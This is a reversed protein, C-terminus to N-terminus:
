KLTATFNEGETDCLFDTTIKGEAKKKSTFEGQGGVYVGGPGKYAFKFKGNKEKDRMSYNCYKTTVKEGDVKITIKEKGSEVAGKYTGDKPNAALVASASLALVAVVAGVQTAHRKWNM